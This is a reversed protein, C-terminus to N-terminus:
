AANPVKRELKGHAKKLDMPNVHAKIKQGTSEHRDHKIEKNARELWM